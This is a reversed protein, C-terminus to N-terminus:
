IPMGKDRHDLYMSLMVATVKRLIIDRIATVDQRFTDWALSLHLEHYLFCPLQLGDSRCQSVYM